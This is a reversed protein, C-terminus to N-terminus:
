LHRYGGVDLILVLKTFDIVIIALINRNTKILSLRLESNQTCLSWLEVPM